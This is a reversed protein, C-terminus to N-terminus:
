ADAEIKTDSSIPTKAAALTGIGSHSPALDYATEAHTALDVGNVEDEESIRFGITMDIVKGLIYAIVFSYIGVAAPAICQWLLQSASHSGYIIGEGQDRSMGLAKATDGILFPYKALFGLSVAGIV